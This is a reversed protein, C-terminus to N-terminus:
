TVGHWFFSDCAVASEEGFSITDVVLTLIITSDCGKITQTTNTYEGAEHIFVGFFDISDGECITQTVPVTYTPNVELSLTVISDCGNITTRHFVYSDSVTGTQFLTDRWMYPLESDCITDMETLLYTPHVVLSFTTVSDCGNVTTRHFMYSDSLTGAQFLTDRWTYPLESDCITDREMLNYTPHVVLSLTVISDCGNVTTRHFVYSDSVTGLQFLTDRWIYPLEGDCITDREMLNYTPNVVLSLTVVSDCGNVTMRHFVYSDSVTGIQFITDRWAYPLQSDCITDREVLNYTPNVGLLLTVVSDSGNVTTRHFEYSDSVTGIQFITDRWIYPLENDCITDRELLYYSPYVVLSLTVVSDCGNVTTRYFVYSGSETGVQFTTDGWTYPLENDQIAVEVQPHYSPNVVLWLTVVSDCGSVTTRHFV